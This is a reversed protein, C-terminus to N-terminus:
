SPGPTALADLVALGRTIEPVPDTPEDREVVFWDVSAATGAAVIEPWPLIGDGPVADHRTPGADMDKMHLLRVRGALRRILEVPDNGALSAWYVDLELGVDPSLEDMLIDWITTGEFAAFEFDHNHYAFGLGRDTCAAAIRGFERAVHRVADATVRDAEPLWPVVVTPCGVVAMRDLVADLDLRLGDLREHSAVPRLGEAALDDRLTEPAIAPLGALEVAHYGARAVARLTGPLDRAALERVTYLQVAIQDRRM